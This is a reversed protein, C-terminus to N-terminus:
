TKAKPSKAGKHEAYFAKLSAKTEEDLDQRRIGLIAGELAQLRM